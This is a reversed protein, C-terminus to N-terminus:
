RTASKLNEKWEGVADTPSNMTWSYTGTGSAGKYAGSSSVHRWTGQATTRPKGDVMTTTVTGEYEATTSGKSDVVSYLGHDPGNGKDLDMTASCLAQGGDEVPESGTSKNTGHAVQAVLVHEKSGLPQAEQKTIQLTFSGAHVPQEAMATSALFALSATALAARTLTAIM